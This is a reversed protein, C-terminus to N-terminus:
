REGGTPNATKSADIARALFLGAVVRRRCAALVRVSGAVAGHRPGAAVGAKWSSCTPMNRCPMRGRLV